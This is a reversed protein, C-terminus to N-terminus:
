VSRSTLACHCTPKFPPRVSQSEHLSPSLSSSSPYNDAIIAEEEEKEKEAEAEIEAPLCVSCVATTPTTTRLLTMLRLFSSLTQKSASFLLSPLSRKLKSSVM